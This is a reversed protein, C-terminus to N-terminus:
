QLARLTRAPVLLGPTHIQDLCAPGLEITAGRTWDDALPPVESEAGNKSTTGVVKLSAVRLCECSSQARDDRPRPQRGNISGIM